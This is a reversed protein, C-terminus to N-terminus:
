EKKNLKISSIINPINDPIITENIQYIIRKKESLRLLDSLERVFKDKSILLFPIDVPTMQHILTCYFTMNIDATQPLDNLSIVYKVHQLSNVTEDFQKLKGYFSIIKVFPLKLEEFKRVFNHSNDGDIFVLTPKETSFNAVLDNCWEIVKFTEPKELDNSKNITIDPNFKPQIMLIRETKIYKQHIEGDIMIVSNTGNSRIYIGYQDRFKGHYILVRDGRKYNRNTNEM